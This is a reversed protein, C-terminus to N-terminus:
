AFFNVAGDGQGRRTSVDIREPEEAKGGYGNKADGSKGRMRKFGYRSDGAGNKDSDQALSVDFKEIELGQNQFNAKLQTLNSEIMDKVLPNEVVIRVTVHHNETLVRM